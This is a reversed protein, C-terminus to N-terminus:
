RVEIYFQADKNDKLTEKFTDGRLGVRLSELALVETVAINGLNVNPGFIKIFEVQQKKLPAEWIINESGLGSLLQEVMFKDMEGEGNYISVGKGSERAEIIVRDAGNELDQEGLQIMKVLPFPAAKDKKGIETLVEFGRSKAEKIARSRLTAPLEITGDSIEIVQFGLELAKELYDEMKGQVIAVEFFTGGPYVSIGKEKILNVKRRLYQHPYLASSGFSLKLYDIYEGALDLLEETAQLGLGKDLVMTLGVQRPKRIRGALPFAFSLGWGNRDGELVM